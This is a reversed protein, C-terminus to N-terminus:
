LLEFNSKITYWFDLTHMKYIQSNFMVHNINPFSALFTIKIFENTETL